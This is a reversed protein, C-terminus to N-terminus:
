KPTLMKEKPQLLNRMQGLINNSPSSFLRSSILSALLIFIIYLKLSYTGDKHADMVM